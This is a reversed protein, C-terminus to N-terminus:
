VHVAQAARARRQNNEVLSRLHGLVEYPTRGTMRCVDALWRLAVRDQSKPWIRPGQYMCSLGIREAKIAIEKKSRGRLLEGGNVEWRECRTGYEPYWKELADLEGDSWPGNRM